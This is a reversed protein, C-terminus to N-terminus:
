KKRMGNGPGQAPATQINFRVLFFLDEQFHALEGVVGGIAPGLRLEGGQEHVVHDRGPARGFRHTPRTTAMFFIAFFHDSFPFFVASFHFFLAFWISIFDCNAIVTEM